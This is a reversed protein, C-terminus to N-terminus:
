RWMKVTKRLLELCHSYTLCEGIYSTTINRIGSYVNPRSFTHVYHLGTAILVESTIQLYYAKFNATVGQDMPPFSINAPLFVYLV